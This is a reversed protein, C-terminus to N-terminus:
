DVPTSGDDVLHLLERSLTKLEGHHLSYGGAALAQVYLIKIVSEVAEEEKMHLLRQVLPNHYNLYMTALPKQEVGALLSSLAESFVGSSNERTEQVRRLFRVDDSMVLLAPLDVPHFHRIEARCDFERLSERCLHLLRHADEKEQQSVEKLVEAMDEEYLPLIPLGYIEVLKSILQDDNMYGTCILLKNQALFIMKLQKFRFIDQVFFATGVRKLAAGTMEGESTQFPLYDIFLRFIEDDWVAMSKIARFHVSVINQLMQPKEESLEQFYTKVAEAFERRADELASDEYFSERSATPRLSSTDLICRLFFAWEPLLPAGQDTLLMHKLYIRHGNKLGSDTTYPLVYAVGSLHSTRIPIAELFEEEFIWKGFALLKGGSIRHFARAFSANENVRDRLPESPVQSIVGCFEEPIWNLPECAQNLYVPVPLMLGYYRVLETIMEEQFYLECGEKCNLFISTGTTIEGCEDRAGNRRKLTYTGDPMGTWEYAYKDQASKTHIVISDSVMFCSLLGIGFRGIYDEQVQGSLLDHKSSQGIVSLFRHIEEETLGAGNDRFVLREGPFLQIDMRGEDWGPEKKKRLTVADAGNQLLERCFVDATKYLHNSLIDLMGGLNVQFHYTKERSTTFFHWAKDKGTQKM